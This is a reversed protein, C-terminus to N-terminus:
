TGADACEEHFPQIKDAYFSRLNGVCLLRAYHQRLNGMCLLWAYHQRLVSFRYVPEDCPAHVPRLDTTVYLVHSSVHRSVSHGVVLTNHRLTCSVLASLQRLYYVHLVALWAWVEGRKAACRGNVHVASDKLLKLVEASDGLGAASRLQVAM